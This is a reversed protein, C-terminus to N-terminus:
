LTTKIVQWNALRVMSIFSTNSEQLWTAPNNKTGNFLCAAAGAVSAALLFVRASRLWGDAYGSLWLRLRRALCSDCGLRWCDLFGADLVCSGRDPPPVDGRVAPWRLLHRRPLPHVFRAM